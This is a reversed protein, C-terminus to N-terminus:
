NFQEKTKKKLQLLKDLVGNIDYMINFGGPIIELGEEVNFSISEYIENEM